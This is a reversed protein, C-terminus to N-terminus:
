NNNNCPFGMVDAHAVVYIGNTCNLNNVTYSWSTTGSALSSQKIPYQGPALTYECNPNSSPGTCKEPLIDCGVYLHVAELSYPSNVNYTVTASSGNYSVTLTGVNTGNATNCQGAGAWLTMTHTGPSSIYNTWGWRTPNDLFQPYQDFCISNSGKAFATESCGNTPPPTNDDCTIYIDFYMGWSGKNTIRTGKGWGTETQVVTGNVVKQLAAHASVVYKTPGPCAFNIDSFPITFCYSTQGTINGSNYPYQGPIPNGSKTMPIQSTATGIFFHTEVLQWGAETNTNFCVQLADVEGDGNTDIDDFCVEGANITQGATLEVCSQGSGVYGVDVKQVINPDTLNPEEQCGFFFLGAILIAPLIFLLKKM